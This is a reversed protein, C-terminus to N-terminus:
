PRSRGYGRPLFSRFPFQQRRGPRILDHRARAQIGVMTPLKWSYVNGSVDIAYLGSAVVAPGAYFFELLDTPNASWLIKCGDNFAIFEPIAAATDGIPNGDVGNDIGAFGIGPVWAVYSFLSSNTAQLKCTETGNGVPFLDLDSQYTGQNLGSFAAIETGDTTPTGIGGIGAPNPNTTIPVPPFLPLSPAYIPYGYYPGTKGTFYLNGSWLLAGGGVDEDVDASGSPVTAIYSQTFQFANGTFAVQLVGDYFGDSAATNGAGVYLYTGDSSIPSWSSGGDFPAAPSTSPAFAIRDLTTGSAEDLAILGGMQRGSQQDGGSIGEIVAGGVVIPEGRMTGSALGPKGGSSPEEWRVAGSSADLAALYGGHAYDTCNPPSVNPCAPYIGEVPVLLTNTVPDLTPTGFAGSVAAFPSSQAGLDTALPLPAQWAIDG